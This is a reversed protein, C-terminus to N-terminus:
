PAVAVLQPRIGRHTFCLALANQQCLFHPRLPRLLLPLAKRIVRENDHENLLEPMEFALDFCYVYPANEVQASRLERLVDLGARGLRHFPDAPLAGVLRANEAKTAWWYLCVHAAIALLRDLDHAVLV